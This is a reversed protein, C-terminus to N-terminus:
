LNGLLKNAPSERLSQEFKAMVSALTDLEASPTVPLDDSGSRDLKGLVYAVTFRSIDAAPQYAEEKLEDSFTQTFVRAAVLDSVANRVLVDPIGLREAYQPATLPDEGAAFTKVAQNVIYLQLLRRRSPSLTKLLPAFEYSHVSQVAYSIEAGFMVILWSLQLWILFLPLAAFSGYIANYKAVGVQFEVFLLQTM